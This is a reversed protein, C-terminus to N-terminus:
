AVAAGPASLPASAEAPAALPAGDDDEVGDRDICRALTFGEPMEACSIIDAADGEAALALWAREADNASLEGVPPDRDPEPPSTDVM